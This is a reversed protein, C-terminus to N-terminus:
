PPLLKRGIHRIIHSPVHRGAMWFCCVATAHGGCIILCKLKRPSREEGHISGQVEIGQGMLEGAGGAEQGDGIGILQGAAEEHKLFALAPIRLDGGDRLFITIAALTIVLDEVGELLPAEQGQLGPFGAGSGIIAAGVLHDALDQAIAKQIGVGRRLDDGLLEPLSMEGDTQAADFPHDGIVAQM